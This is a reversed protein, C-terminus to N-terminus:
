KEVKEQGEYDLGAERQSTSLSAEEIMDVPIEVESTKVIIEVKSVLEMTGDDKKIYTERYDSM